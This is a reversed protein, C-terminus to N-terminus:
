ECVSFEPIAPTLSSQTIFHHDSLHHHKILLERASGLLADVWSQKHGMPVLTEMKMHNLTGCADRAFCSCLGETFHELSEMFPGLVKVVSDDM